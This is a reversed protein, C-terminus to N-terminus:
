LRRGCSVARSFIRSGIIGFPRISRWRASSSRSATPRTSRLACVGACKLPPSCCRTAIALARAFSGIRTRASSGVPFRSSSFARFTIAKNHRVHRFWRLVRMTTVCSRPMMCMTSVTKSSRPPMIALSFAGALLAVGPDYSFVYRQKRFRSFFLQHCRPCRFNQRYLSTGVFGALWAASFYIGIHEPADHEFVNVVVIILLIGPVYSLVFFWFLLERRRLDRWARLYKPDAWM